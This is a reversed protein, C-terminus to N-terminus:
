TCPNMSQIFGGPYIMNKEGLYSLSPFGSRGFTGLSDSKTLLVIKGLYIKRVQGQNNITSPRLKRKLLNILLLYHCGKVLHCKNIRKRIRVAWSHLSGEQHKTWPSQQNRLCKVEQLDSVGPNIEKSTPHCFYISLLSESMPASSVTVFNFPRLGVTVM